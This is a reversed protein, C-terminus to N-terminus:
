SDVRSGQWPHQRSCGCLRIVGSAGRRIIKHSNGSKNLTSLRQPSFHPQTHCRLLIQQPRPCPKTQGDWKLYYSLRVKMTGM